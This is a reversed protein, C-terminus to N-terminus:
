NRPQKKWRRHMWVWQAPDKQIMSEIAESCKQTNIRYLEDREGTTQLDIPPQIELVHQLGPQMHISMPVIAAGTKLALAVAGVPTHAPIGMFDVFVGDVRTDQDILIGLAGGQRLVQLMQRADKDRDLVTVGGNLRNKQVLRNLKPDFIHRGVVVVPYGIRKLFGAMLEWAGIHGSLAIVGKGATLARDLHEKGHITVYRYPNHRLLKCMCFMDAVNCGLKWFVNRAMRHIEAASKAQGYVRTLNKQTINRDRKVLYYWIVGCGAMLKQTVGRPLLNAIHFLGSILLFVLFNKIKKLWRKKKM